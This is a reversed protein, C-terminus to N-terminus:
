KQSGGGALHFYSWPYVPLVIWTPHPWDSAAAGVTGLPLQWEPLPLGWLEQSDLTPSICSAVGPPLGPGRALNTRLAQAQLSGHDLQTAKPLELCGGAWWCGHSVEQLDTPLM